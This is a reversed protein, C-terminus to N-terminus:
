GWRLVTRHGALHAWFKGLQNASLERADACFRAWQQMTPVHLFLPGCDHYDCQQYNHCDRRPQEDDQVRQVFSIQMLCVKNEDRVAVGLKSSRMRTTAKSMRFLVILVIIQIIEHNVSYLV